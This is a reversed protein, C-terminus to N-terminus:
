SDPSAAYPGILGHYAVVKHLIPGIKRRYFLDL